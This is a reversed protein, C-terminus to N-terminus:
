ASWLRVAHWGLAHERTRTLWVDNASKVRYHDILYPVSEGAFPNSTFIPNAHTEPPESKHSLKVACPRRGKRAPQRTALSLILSHQGGLDLVINNGFVTDPTMEVAPTFEGNHRPVNDPLGDRATVVTGDAVALVPKGYAYYSRKDSADGSFTKGNQSQQWDIAYRRTILVRGEWSSSIAHRRSAEAQEAV